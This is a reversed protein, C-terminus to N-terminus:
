NFKDECYQKDTMSSMMKKTTCHNLDCKLLILEVKRLAMETSGHYVKLDQNEVPFGGTM